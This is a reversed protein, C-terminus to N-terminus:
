IRALHLYHGPVRERCKECDERYGMVLPSTRPRGYRTRVQDNGPQSVQLRGMMEDAEGSPTMPDDYHPEIPHSPHDSLYFSAEDEERITPSLHAPQHFGNSFTDFGSNSYGIRPTAIRGNEQQPPAPQAQALYPSHGGVMDNSRQRQWPQPSSFHERPQSDVMEMDGDGDNGLVARISSTSSDPSTNYDDLAPPQEPEHDFRVEDDSSDTPTILATRFHPQASQLVVVASRKSDPSLRIPLQHKARKFCILSIQLPPDNRLSVKRTDQLDAETGTDEDRPRKSLHSSM